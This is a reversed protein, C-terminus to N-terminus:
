YRLGHNLTRLYVIIACRIFHSRDTWRGRQRKSNMVARIENDIDKFIRTEVTVELKDTVYDTKM